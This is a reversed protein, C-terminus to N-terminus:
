QSQQQRSKQEAIYRQIDKKAIKPEPSYKQFKEKEEETSAYKQLVSNRVINYKKPADVMIRCNNKTGGALIVKIDDGITFYEGPRLTFNLM